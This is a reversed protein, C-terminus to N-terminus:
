RRGNLLEKFFKEMTRLHASREPQAITQRPVATSRLDIRDVPARIPGRSLDAKPWNLQEASTRLNMQGRLWDTAGRGPVISGSAYSREYCVTPACTIGSAT